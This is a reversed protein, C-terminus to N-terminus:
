VSCYLNPFYKTGPSAVLIIMKKSYFPTLDMLLGKKLDEQDWIYRTTFLDPATGGILQTTVWARHQEVGGFNQLQLNIKVNPNKQVYMKVTEEWIQQETQDGNAETTFM